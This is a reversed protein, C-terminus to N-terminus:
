HNLVRILRFNPYAELADALQRDNSLRPVKNQGGLKGISQMYAKFAGSPLYRVILPQLIGGEILDRYYLNQEVMAKDLDAAFAKLDDPKQGFEIWWEHYPKEEGPLTSRRRWLLNM